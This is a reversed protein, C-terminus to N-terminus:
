RSEDSRKSWESIWFKQGVEFVQTVVFLFFM